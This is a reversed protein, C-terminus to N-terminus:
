PLWQAMVNCGRMVNCSDRVVAVPLPEKRPTRLQIWKNEPLESLEIPMPLGDYPPPLGNVLIMRSDISISLEEYLPHYYKQRLQPQFPPFDSKTQAQAPSAGGIHGSPAALILALLIVGLISGKM